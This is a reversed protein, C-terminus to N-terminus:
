VTRGTGTMGGFEDLLLKISFAIGYDGTSLQVSVSAWIADSGVSEDNANRAEVDCDVM